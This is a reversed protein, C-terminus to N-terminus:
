HTSYRGVTFHVTGIKDGTHIMKRVGVIKFMGGKAMALGLPATMQHLLKFGHHCEM